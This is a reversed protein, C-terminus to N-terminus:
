QFYGQGAPYTDMIEQPYLVKMPYPGSIWMYARQFRTDSFDPVVALAFAFIGLPMHAQSLPLKPPKAELRAAGVVFPNRLGCWRGQGRAAPQELIAAEQGAREGVALNDHGRLLRPAPSECPRLVGGIPADRATAHTELVDVAADLATTDDVVGITEPLSADAIQPHFNATRPM